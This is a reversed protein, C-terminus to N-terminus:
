KIELINLTTTIGEQPSVSKAGDSIRSQIFSAPFKVLKRGNKFFVLFFAEGGNLEVDLLAKLQHMKAKDLPWTRSACEKADFAIFREQYFIQFDFGHRKVMTGDHLQEPHNQQCHIGRSAYSEFLKRIARELSRGRNAYDTHIPHPAAEDKM